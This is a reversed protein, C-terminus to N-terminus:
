ETRPVRKLRRTRALELLKARVAATLKPPLPGYWVSAPSRGPVPRLDPGPWAFLNAEGCVIWSRDQDLGLRVKTVAPIEIAAAADNPPNHTIPVVVVIQRGGEGIVASLLACPRDKAGEEAGAQRDDAWLYSYRLVWGVRPEGIM